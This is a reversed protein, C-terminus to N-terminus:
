HEVPLGSSCVNELLKFYANTDFNESRKSRREEAFESVIGSTKMLIQVLMKGQETDSLFKFKALKVAETSTLEECLVVLTEYDSERM